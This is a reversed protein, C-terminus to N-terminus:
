RRVAQRPFKQRRLRHPRDDLPLHGAGEGPRGRGARGPAPGPKRSVGRGPPAHPPRVPRHRLLRHDPRGAPPPPGASAGARVKRESGALRERLAEAEEAAQKARRATEALRAELDASRDAEQRAQRESRALRANLAAAAEAGEWAQRDSEALRRGSEARQWLLGAAAVGALLLSLLVGARAVWGSRNSGQRVPGGADPRGPRTPPAGPPPPPPSARPRGSHVPGPKAFLGQVSAAPVWKRGGDRLVMDSPLLQGSAALGKLQAPSFPGLKHKNDRAYYWRAV